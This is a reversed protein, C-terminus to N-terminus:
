TAEGTEVDISNRVDAVVVGQVMDANPLPVSVIAHETQLDMVTKGRLFLGVEAGRRRTLGRLQYRGARDWRMMEHAARTYMGRNLVKLMSSKSLNGEGLNYTWSVLADFQDQNLDVKVLRKVADEYQKVDNNFMALAQEITIIKGPTVNPPGAAATHGIGITWVGVPDKYAQTRIGEFFTILDIGGVSIRDPHNAVRQDETLEIIEETM